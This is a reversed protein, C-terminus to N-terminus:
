GAEGGPGGGTSTGTGGGPFRRTSVSDAPETGIVATPDTFLLAFGPPLQLLVRDTLEPGAADAVASLVAAADRHVSEPGAGEIWPVAARLFQEPNLPEGPLPALLARAYPQPLHTALEARQRDPYGARARVTDLFAERRTTTM